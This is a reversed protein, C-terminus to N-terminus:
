GHCPSGGNRLAARATSADIARATLANASRTRWGGGPPAGPEYRAASKAIRELEEADLPPQCRGDNVAVLAAEIERASLGVRRLACGIRFLVDNRAGESIVEPAKTPPRDQRAIFQEALVAPLVALHVDDPHASLEWAYHQQSSHLSPPAVVYGSEAKIDVGPLLGIRSAVKLEPPRRYYIHRGGGGTVSEWTPMSETDLGRIARVSEHGDHRPDIDIVVLFSPGTAIGINALPWRRWWALIEETDVTAAKEGGAVIPHKGPSPCSTSGCMCQGAGDISYLPLVHFGRSAYSLPDGDGLRSPQLPASM